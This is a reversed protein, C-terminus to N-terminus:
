FPIDDEPDYMSQRHLAIEFDIGENLAQLLAANMREEETTLSNGNPDETAERFAAYREESLAIEITFRHM